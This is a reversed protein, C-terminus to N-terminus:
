WIWPILKRVRRTYTRFDEGFHAELLREEVQIRYALGPILLVPVAALGIWSGYGSAIGLTLLVFGAYGPHRMCRYPGTTVLADGAAVQVHGSYMGKIARRTWLRLAMGFALLALGLIQMGLTRPLVPDLYMFELPSAFFPVLMGPLIMWFSRDRTEERAAEKSAQWFPIKRIWYFYIVGAPYAVGTLLLIAGLLNERLTALGLLSLLLSFCPAVFLLFFIATRSM